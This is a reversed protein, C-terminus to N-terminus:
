QAAQRGAARHMDFINLILYLQRQHTGAAMVNRTSIHQVALLARLFARALGLGFPVLLLVGGMVTGPEAISTDPDNDYAAGPLILNKFALLMSAGSSQTDSTERTWNRQGQVPNTTDFTFTSSDGSIGESSASCDKVSGSGNGLDLKGEVVMNAGAILPLNAFLNEVEAHEAGRMFVKEILIKLGYGVVGTCVTAGIVQTLFIPLIPYLMESSIDNFFSIFSDPDVEERSIAALKMDSGFKGLFYSNSRQVVVYTFNDRTEVFSRFFM